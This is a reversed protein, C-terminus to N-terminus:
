LYTVFTILKVCDSYNIFLFLKNKISVSSDPIIEMLEIM